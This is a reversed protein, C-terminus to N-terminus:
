HYAARLYRHKRPPEVPRLSDVDCGDRVGNYEGPNHSADITTFGARAPPAGLASAGLVGMAMAWRKLSRPAAGGAVGGSRPFKLSFRSM